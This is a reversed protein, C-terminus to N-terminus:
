HSAVISEPSRLVSHSNFGSGTPVPTAPTEQGADPQEGEPEQEEPITINAANSTEKAARKRKASEKLKEWRERYKAMQAKQLETLSHVMRSCISM